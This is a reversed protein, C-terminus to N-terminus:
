GRDAAAGPNFGRRRTRSRSPPSNTASRRSVFRRSGALALFAQGQEQTPCLRFRYVKRLTAM